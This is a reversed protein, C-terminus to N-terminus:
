NNPTQYGPSIDSVGYPTELKVRWQPEGKYSSKYVWGETELWHDQWAEVTARDFYHQNEPY